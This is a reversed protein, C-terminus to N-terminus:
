RGTDRERTTILSHTDGTSVVKGVDSMGKKEDADSGSNSTTEIVDGKISGETSGADYKKGNSFM